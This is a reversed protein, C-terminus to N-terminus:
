SEMLKKLFLLEMLDETKKPVEEMEIKEFVVFGNSIGICFSLGIFNPFRAGFIVCAQCLDTVSLNEMGQGIVVFNQKNLKIIIPM